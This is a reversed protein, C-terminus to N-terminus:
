KLFIEKSKKESLILDLLSGFCGLLAFLSLIGSSGGFLRCVDGLGLLPFQYVCGRGGLGLFFGLSLGALSVSLLCGLYNGLLCLSLFHSNLYLFLLRCCLYLLFIGLLQITDAFCRIIWCLLNRSSM